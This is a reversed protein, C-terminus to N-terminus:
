RLIILHWKLAKCIYKLCMESDWKKIKSVAPQNQHSLGCMTRLRHQKTYTQQQQQQQQKQKNIQKNTKSEGIQQHEIEGKKCRKWYGPM